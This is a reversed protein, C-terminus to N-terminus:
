GSFAIRLGALLGRAGATSRSLATVAPASCVERYLEAYAVQMDRRDHRQEARVRAARGLRARLAADEVLRAIAEGLREPARPPVLLGTEGDAVVEPTGGVATAVVPLGAAMAEIIANSAGEFISCSVFVDLARLAAASDEVRGPLIIRDGFGLERARAALAQPDVGYANGIILLVARPDKQAVVAMAEVLDEIRKVPRLVGLSGVVVADEPVGFRARQEARTARSTAALDIGTPMTTVRARPVGFHLALEDSLFDCVSTLRDIHPALAHMVALQRPTPGEPSERGGSEYIVHPVGALRAAAIGYVSAAWNHVHVLDPRRAAIARALRVILGVDLGLRSPSKEFSTVDIDPGAREIIAPNVPGFAMWSLAVRERDLGALVRAMREEIGGSDLHPTFVLIRLRDGSMWASPPVWTRGRGRAM